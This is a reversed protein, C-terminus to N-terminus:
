QHHRLRHTPHPITRRHGHHHQQRAFLPDNGRASRHAPQEAHQQRTNRRWQRMGAAVARSDVRRTAVYELGAGYTPISFAAYLYQLMVALEIMAAHQLAPVLESRTTIWRNTRTTAPVIAPVGSVTNQARLFKLLLHAKPASLDRTPPMYYTKTKNRPDCMQWILRAYTKVRFQDALSFVEANMFSSLLEYFAFIERYVLDFTVDEQAIDDLRWDNPLVRVSLWGAGAWYGLSDDDDYGVVASGPQTVECPAHDAHALLLVRASGARTGRITFWGRGKEDTHITCTRSWDGSDGLRGARFGVIEIDDCRAQTSRAVGDLPLAKPNFFQRVTVTDIPRPCGRVFSRVPVEVDHRPDNGDRPHDLILCADDVQLNTEQESLLVVRKGVADRGLLCLAQEGAMQVPTEIPITVIGSTLARANGLYAQRPVAAVLQDTDMTRLELDGVDLLPGLRHTPGPGCNEARCTASVANIMNFMVHGPTVEVTLNHLESRNSGYQPQQPILLRGAPYTRLEHTRWPAITGWLDWYSPCDPAPPTSMNSLAFQVVLGGVEGSDVVSRLLTVAPSVSAEDLWNLGEDKPVVFQYVTSRQLQPALFHDGVDLIYNFNHWRPPHLGHVDGTLMYGVDHSRGERGFCFQGVMLTTTWNSSPDVDFVRARNFTTALYENHHGWMDVNRGVAPDGTDIGGPSTEVSVIKADIWFHGNGGFNWGKLASFAGDDTVHGAADFRPGHKDLYDHYKQPPLHTPFPGEETLAINTSLDVLSSRTGTPLKTTAVGSFHLRPLDFVSM